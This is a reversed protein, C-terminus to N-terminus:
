REAAFERMSQYLLACLAGYLVIAMLGIYGVVKM